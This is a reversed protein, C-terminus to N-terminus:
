NGITNEYNFVRTRTPRALNKAYNIRKLYVFLCPLRFRTCDFTTQTLTHIHMDFKDVENRITRLM